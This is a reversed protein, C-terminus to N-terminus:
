RSTVKFCGAREQVEATRWASPQSHTVHRRLDLRVVRDLVRDPVVRAVRVLIAADRGITYRTRPHSSTAAKAIVKAAHEASVGTKTYVGIPSGVAATWAASRACSRNRSMTPRM